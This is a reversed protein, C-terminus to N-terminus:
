APTLSNDVFKARSPAPKRRARKSAELALKELSLAYANDIREFLWRAAPVRHWSYWAWLTHRDVQLTRAARVQGGNGHGGHARVIIELKHRLDARFSRCRSLGLLIVPYEELDVSEAHPMDDPAWPGDLTAPLGADYDEAM